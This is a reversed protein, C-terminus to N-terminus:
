LLTLASNTTTPLFYTMYHHGLSTSFWLTIHRSGVLGISAPIGVGGELHKLVKYEHQVSSSHSIPKLKIAVALADEKIINWV